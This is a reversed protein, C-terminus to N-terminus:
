GIVSTLIGRLERLEAELETRGTTTQALEVRVLERLRHRMRHVAVALTNRRMSLAQAAREYDAEAPTQTLFEHLQEFLAGKGVARAEDRLRHLASDLVALAWAREFVREPTETEVIAAQGAHGNERLHESRADGGRKQAHMYEDANILFRKLAVLIFARFRGREPDARAHSAREIFDAFFGQTLDEAADAAYGHGRVYALVPPRYTRCLANLAERADMGAGGARLVVSWQTSEFKAMGSKRGLAM